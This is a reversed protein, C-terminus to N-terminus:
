RVDKAEKLILEKCDGRSDKEKCEKCLEGSTPKTASVESVPRLPYNSCNMCWHWTDSGMKRRYSAMMSRRENKTVHSLEVWAREGMRDPTSDMLFVSSGGNM